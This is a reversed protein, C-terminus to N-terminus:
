CGSVQKKARKLMSKTTTVITIGRSNNYTAGASIQIGGQLSVEGFNRRFSRGSGKKPVVLLQQLSDSSAAITQAQLEALCGCSEPSPCETPPETPTTAPKRTPPTRQAYGTAVLLCTIITLRTLWM